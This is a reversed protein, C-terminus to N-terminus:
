IKRLIHSACDAFLSAPESSSRVSARSRANRLSRISGAMAGVIPANHLASAVTANDFETAHDVRRAAGDLNLISHDLAGGAPNRQHKFV